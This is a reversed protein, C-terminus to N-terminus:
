RGAFKARLREATTRLTPGWDHADNHSQRIIRPSDYWLSREGEYGWYWFKGLKAPLLVWTEVGVAGAIHATTNSVSIVLDCAGILSALGDIDEKLDLGEIHHLTIGFRKEFEAREAATNGYQLDVFKIGPTRFIDIWDALNITKNSGITQNKSIWSIGVLKEGPALNMSARFFKSKAPNVLLYRSRNKPFKAIDNRLFRGLSASPSQVTIDDTMTEPRPPQVGVRPVVKMMPYSRQLLPVLRYDCEWVVNCGRKLLDEAMSMHLIEDGVGQESWVLMTKGRVDEGCWRTKKSRQFLNDALWRWEYDEWATAFEQMLLSVLGLNKRVSAHDIKFSLARRFSQIAEDFRALGWLAMGRNSHADVYDPEQAISRDLMALGEDFRGLKTLSDGYNNIAKPNIPQIEVAKKFAALAEEHREMSNLEVGLNNYAMPRSPDLKIAKKHVEIAEATKKQEYLCVGLNNLLMADNPNMEEAKRYCAEALTLNGARQAELGANFTNVFEQVAAPMKNATEARREARNKVASPLGAAGPVATATKAPAAPKFKKPPQTKLSNM